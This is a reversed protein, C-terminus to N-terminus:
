RAVGAPPPLPLDPTRWPITGALEFFQAIMARARATIVERSAHPDDVILKISQGLEVLAAQGALVQEVVADSTIVIEGEVAATCLDFSLECPMKLLRASM